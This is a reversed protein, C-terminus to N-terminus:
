YQLTFILLLVIDLCIFLGTFVDRPSGEQFNEHIIIM